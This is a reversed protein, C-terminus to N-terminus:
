IPNHIEMGLIQQTPGLDNMDFSMSLEKKLQSIKIADQRVILM